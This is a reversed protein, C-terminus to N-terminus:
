VSIDIASKFWKSYLSSKDDFVMMYEVKLSNALEEIRKIPTVFLTTAAIDAQVIDDCLVHVSLYPHTSSQGTHTDILHHYENDIWRSRHGKGSNALAWTLLPMKSIYQSPDQPHSIYVPWFTELSAQKISIDGGGNICYEHIDHEQLHEQIKRILYGKGIGWLDLHRSHEPNQKGYGMNELDKWVFMDFFGDSLTHYHQWLAIMEQLDPDNIKEGCNYRTVLSDPLFRSYQQEFDSIIHKLEKNIKEQQTTDCVYQINRHTGCWTTTFLYKQKDQMAWNHNCILSLLM